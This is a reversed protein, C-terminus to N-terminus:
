LGGARRRLAVDLLVLALALPVLYAALPTHEHRVGPRAAFIEAPEPDVVGGTSAALQALFVRNPTTARAERGSVSRAPVTLEIREEVPGEPSPAVLIAPHVGTRLSPLTATFTRRGAPRLLVDGTGGLRLVFPGDGDVMTDLRVITGERRREVELHRDGALGRPAAWLVLQSWLKGFGSWAPWEAAGAQFDIPIAAVRGLEYQWTALLPDHRDGREAYLRMEAGHKPHTLAFRTVPPLEAETLGALISGGDGIRTPAAGREPSADLLRQTDRIMLQPLARVNEVHHFEGGTASSIATLLDLNITDSGIRITTVTIEARALATILQAHDEAGRNTDGDTLLIVHRVRAGSEILNRRAIDLAEKFDTGGGYQIQQIRQALEARSTGAPRLQGIEYPLSDFAIAAVLDRPGLQELVALAARKAYEMKEGNSLMPQTSSYGMSNSRDIVLYLAIPEREQPEPLQSRLEVPLIRELPTASFGADGFLHEGGTAILAGGGAVYDRLATLVADSFGARAVDDLVVVHYSALHPVRAAFGPPAVIEVQMGREGLASAVVPAHRESVLLVRLPRTVTISTRVPSTPQPDDRDLLLETELLYQGASRLRYPLGVVSLGPAVDLPLAALPEGNVTLKLAAPIPQPARSEIVAELPLITHEPALAPALVRRITAAPLAQAAPVVPYIPVRPEILAAEALASGTTENGDTFLLLAAQKGEPCLPAAAALAAALDTDGTELGTLDSAPGPVLDDLATRGANPHAVVHARAAFAVSGLLDGRRLVPVVHGLFDRARDAAAHRVSASEDIAAVICTGAEPRSRELYLGALALVVAITALSRALAAARAGRAFLFFLPVAALALLTMPSTVGFAGLAFPLPIM